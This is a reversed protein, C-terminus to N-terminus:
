IYHLIFNHIGLAFKILNRPRYQANTKIGRHMGYVPSTKQEYYNKFKNQLRVRHFGAQFTSTAVSSNCWTNIRRPPHVQVCESASTLKSFSHPNSLSYTGIATFAVKNISTPSTLCALMRLPLPWM